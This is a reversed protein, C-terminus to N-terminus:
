ITKLYKWHILHNKLPYRTSKDVQNGYYYNQDHIDWVKAHKEIQFSKKKYLNFYGAKKDNAKEGIASILHLSKNPRAFRSYSDAIKGLWTELTEEDGNQKMLFHETVIDFCHESTGEENCLDRLLYDTSIICEDYHKIGFRSNMFDIFDASVNFGPLHQENGVKVPMFKMPYLRRPIIIKDLVEAIQYLPFLYEDVVYLKVKLDKKCARLADIVISVFTFHHVFSACGAECIAIEKKTHSKFIAELRNQLFMRQEYILYWGGAPITLERGTVKRFLSEWSNIDNIFFSDEHTKLLTPKTTYVSCKVRELHYATCIDKQLGNQFASNLRAQVILIKKQELITKVDANFPLIEEQHGQRMDDSETKGRKRRTLQFALINGLIDGENVATIYDKGITYYSLLDFIEQNGPSRGEIVRLLTDHSLGACNNDRYYRYLEFDIEALEQQAFLKIHPELKRYGVIDNTDTEHKADLEAKLKVRIAKKFGEKIIQNEQRM